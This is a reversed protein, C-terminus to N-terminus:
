ADGDRSGLETVYGACLFFFLDFFANSFQDYPVFLPSEGASDLILLLLLAPLLKEATSREPSLLLRLSSILLLVCIALILALGPLGTTAMAQLFSNHLHLKVHYYMIASGYASMMRISYNDAGRLLVAPHDELYLLMYYYIGTRGSTYEDLTEEWELEAAASATETEASESRVGKTEAAVPEEATGPGNLINTSLGLGAYCLLAAAIAIAAVAARRGRFGRKLVASAIVAAVPIVAGVFSLKTMRSETAALALYNPLIAALAPLLRRPTYRRLLLYVALLIAMAMLLSCSNPNVGLIELRLDEDAGTLYRGDALTLTRGSVVTWLGVLSAATMVLVFAAALGDFFRRRRADGTGRAFPLGFAYIISVELLFYSERTDKLLLRTIGFWAIFALGLWYVPRRLDGRVLWCLSVLWVPYPLVDLIGAKFGFRVETLLFAGACVAMLVYAAARLTKDAKETKLTRLM